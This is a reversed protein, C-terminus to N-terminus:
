AKVTEDLTSNGVDEPFSNLISVKELPVSRYNMDDVTEVKQSFLNM